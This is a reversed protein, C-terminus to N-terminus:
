VNELQLHNPCAYVWSQLLTLRPRLYILVAIVDRQIPLDEHKPKIDSTRVLEATQHLYKEFVRCHSSVGRVIM